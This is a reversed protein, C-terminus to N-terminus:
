DETEYVIYEEEDFYESYMVEDFEECHVTADEVVEAQRAARNGCSAFVFATVVLILFLKKM